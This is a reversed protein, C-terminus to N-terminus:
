VSLLGPETTVHPVPLLVHFVSGPFTLPDYGPSEVWIEGRHMAVIGKAISLGLGAGKGKFSMNGTFHEEIKGADFFKDFVHMQDKESIGIGTDRIVIEVYPLPHAELMKVMGGDVSDTDPSRLSELCRTEISVTGGDPTFKLANNLLQAVAQGLRKRDGQIEPMKEGLKTELRQQRHHFYHDFEEVSSMLLENIDVPEIELRLERNDLMSVDLMDRVIDSLREGADAIYRIMAGVSPDVKNGMEGLILDSYGIIVTLPTKLEHSAVGLFSDKMRNLRELERASEELNEKTERELTIDRIIIQVWFKGQAGRIVSARMWGVIPRSEGPRLYKFEAEQYGKELLSQYLRYQLDLNGEALDVAQFLNEGVVRDASLGFFQEAQKNFLIVCDERDCIIIADSAQDFLVRYMERSRKLDAGILEQQESFKQLLLNAEELDHYNELIKEDRDQLSVAMEGLAQALDEFDQNPMDLGEVTFNGGAIEKAVLRLKDIPRVIDRRLFLAVLSFILLLGGCLVLVSHRLIMFTHHDLIDQPFGIRVRGAPRDDALHLPVSVDYVTGWQPFNMLATKGPLKSLIKATRAPNFSPDSSYLIKGKADEVLCYVIDPDTAVIEQCRANIGEMESLPIGLALVNEISVKLGGALSRSRLIISDRFDKRFGQISLGANVSLALTLIIFAFLLIRKELTIKKMPIVPLSVGLLNM